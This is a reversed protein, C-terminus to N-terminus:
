CHWVRPLKFPKSTQSENSQHTAAFVQAVVERIRQSHKALVRAVILPGLNSAGAVVDSHQLADRVDQLRAACDDAAYILTAFCNAGNTLTPRALHKELGKHLADDLRLADAFILKGHRRIQWQDLLQGSQVVEGMATRGFVVIEAAFLSASEAMEVNMRRELRSGEFLITEQPLWCASASEGLQLDTRITAVEDRSRYVREAAQTTILAAANEDWRASCSLADGDTLGGSTNILVAEAVAQHDVPPLRAQYCGEQYLEGLTTGAGRQKFSM